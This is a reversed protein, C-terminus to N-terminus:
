SLQPPFFWLRGVWFARQQKRSGIVGRLYTRELQFRHIMKRVCGVGGRLWAATAVSVYKRAKAGRLIGSHLASESSPLFSSTHQPSSARPDSDCSRHLFPTWLSRIRKRFDGPPSWAEAPRDTATPHEEEPTSLIRTDSTPLPNPYLM